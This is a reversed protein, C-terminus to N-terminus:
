WVINPVEFRHRRGTKVIKAPTDFYAQGAGIWTQLPWNGLSPDGLQIPNSTIGNFRWKDPTLGKNYYDAPSKTFL